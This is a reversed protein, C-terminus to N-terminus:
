KPAEAPYFGVERNFPQREDIRRWVLETEALCGAGIVICIRPDDFIHFKRSDTFNAENTRRKELWAIEESTAAAGVSDMFQAVTLNGFRLIM